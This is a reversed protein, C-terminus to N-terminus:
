PARAATRGRACWRCSSSTPSRSRRRTAASSPTRSTTSWRARRRADADEVRGGAPGLAQRPGDRLLPRGGVGARRRRDRGPAQRRRASLGGGVRAAHRPRRPVRALRRADPRAAQGARVGRVRSGAVAHVNGPSTLGFLHLTGGSAKAAEITAVLTPNEYFSGDASRRTSACSTRISSAGPASTSTASRATAWRGTPCARRRERLRRHPRAPLARLHGAFTPMRALRIANGDTEPREGFGDLVVLVVRPVNSM